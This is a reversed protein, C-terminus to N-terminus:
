RLIKFIVTLNTVGGNFPTAPISIQASFRVFALLKSDRNNQFFIRLFCLKNRLIHLIFIFGAPM